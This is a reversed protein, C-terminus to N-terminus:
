LLKGFSVFERAELISSFEERARFLCQIPELTRIRGSAQENDIEIVELGDIVRVAVYNSM